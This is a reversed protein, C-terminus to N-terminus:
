SEAGADFSWGQSECAKRVKGRGFDGAFVERGTVNDRLKLVYGTYKSGVPGNAAVRFSLSSGDVRRIIQGASGKGRSFSIEDPTVILRARNRLLYRAFVVDLVAGGACIIYVVTSQAGEVRLAVAILIIAIFLPFQLLNATSQRLEVRTQGSQV